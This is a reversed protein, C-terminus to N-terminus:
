PCSRALVFNRRAEFLRANVIALVGVWSSTGLNQASNNAIFHGEGGDVQIAASLNPCNAKSVFENGVIHARGSLQEVRIQGGQCLGFINGTISVGDRGRVLVGYTGNVDIGVNHLENGAIVIEAPGGTGDIQIGGSCRGLGNGTISIGEGGSLHIAYNESVINEFYNASITGSSQRAGLTDLVRLASEV